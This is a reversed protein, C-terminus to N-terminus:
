RKRMESPDFKIEVNRWQDYKDKPLNYGDKQCRLIARRGAQFAETADSQNGGEFAIMQISSAIVKGDPQMEMAITVTVNAARSGVNVSWCNAVQNRFADKDDGTRLPVLKKTLRDIVRKESRNVQSNGISNRKPDTTSLPSEREIICIGIDRNFQNNSTTTLRFTLEKQNFIIETETRHTFNKLKFDWRYDDLRDADLATVGGSSIITPPHYVSRTSIYHLGDNWIVVNEENDFHIYFPLSKIIESPTQEAQNTESTFSCAYVKLFEDANGVTPLAFVLFAIFFFKFRQKIGIM